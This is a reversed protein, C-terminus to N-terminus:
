KKRKGLRTRKKNLLTPEVNAASSVREKGVVAEVKIAMPQTQPVEVEEVIPCGKASCKKCMAVFDPSTNSSAKCKNACSGCEFNETGIKPVEKEGFLKGKLWRGAGAIGAKAAVASKLLTKKALDLGIAGAGIISSKALKNGYERMAEDGGALYSILDVLNEGTAGLCGSNKLNQAVNHTKGDSRKLHSLGYRAMTNFDPGGGFQDAVARGSDTATLYASNVYDGIIDSNASIATGVAAGIATGVVPVVSGVFAGIAPAYSALMGIATKKVVGQTANSQLGSLVTNGLGRWISGNECLNYNM